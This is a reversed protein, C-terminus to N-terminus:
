MNLMAFLEPLTSVVEDPPILKSFSAAKEKKIREIRICRIEPNEAKVESINEPLDDIFAHGPASRSLKCLYEKAAIGKGSHDRNGPVILVDDLHSSIGSAHVKKEQFVPHMTSTLLVLSYTDRARMLFPVTDSYLMPLLDPLECTGLVVEKIRPEIDNGLWTYLQEADFLTRDFDLFLIPKQMEESYVTAAGVDPKAGFGSPPM